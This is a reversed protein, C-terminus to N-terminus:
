GEAGVAGIAGIAREVGERRPSGPLASLLTRTYPHRPHAFLEDVPASEVIEGESMVAVRDCTEAVVGFDHTILLIALGSEARLQRLLDLIQAQLTVDLATTPEDAILLDPGGALALALLVRQLQGGSLQHPYADLRGAAGALRVRELLHVAEARAERRRLPRHARVAEAIQFGISLVPNLATMPEQFVVGIRGGRVRRWTAAPAALLDGEGALELRGSVEAGPPTLGLLALATLSKGSGSAGVLGFIESRRLDFDAGRVVVAPAAVAGRSVGGHPFSVTLGRVALLPPPGDAAPGNPPTPAPAIL